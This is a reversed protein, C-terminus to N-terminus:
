FKNWPVSFTSDQLTTCTCKFFNHTDEATTPHLTRYTNDLQNITSNKDEADKNINQSTTRDIILLPNNVNEVIITSSYIEGKLDTMKQKMYKPARNNLVYRNEIKVYAQHISEKKM